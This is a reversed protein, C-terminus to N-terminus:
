QLSGINVPDSIINVAWGGRGWTTSCWPAVPLGTRGLRKELHQELFDSLTLFTQLGPHMLTGAFMMM